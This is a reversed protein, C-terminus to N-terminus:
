ADSPSLVTAELRHEGDLLCTVSAGTDLCDNMNLGVALRLPAYQIRHRSLQM